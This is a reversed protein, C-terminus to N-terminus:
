KLLTAVVNIVLGLLVAGYLYAFLSHRLTLRRVTKSTISTDSVQFTMGITFAFYAFDIYTPPEDENFEIGGVPGSGASGSCYARAYRLMFITHVVTWSLVVSFLGLAILFAKMEGVAQGAKVLAFAVAGLVAVNAGILLLEAVPASPDERNALEATLEADLGRVASLTWALYIAVAVDWGLLVAASPVTAWATAVGVVAGVLVGVTVRSGSSARAMGAPFGAGGKKGPFATGTKGTSNDESDV